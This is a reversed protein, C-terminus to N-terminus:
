STFDFERDDLIYAIYISNSHGIKTIVYHGHPNQDTTM